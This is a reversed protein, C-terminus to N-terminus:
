KVHVRGGPLLRPQKEPPSFILPARNWVSQDSCEFNVYLGDLTLACAFPQKKRLERNVDLGYNNYLGRGSIAHHCLPRIRPIAFGTKTPEFGVWAEM